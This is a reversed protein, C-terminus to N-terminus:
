AMRYLRCAKYGNFDWGTRWLGVIGYVHDRSTGIKWTDSWLTPGGGSNKPNSTYCDGYNVRWNAMLLNCKMWDTSGFYVDGPDSLATVVQNPPCLRDTAGASLEVALVAADLQSVRFETGYRAASVRPWIPM